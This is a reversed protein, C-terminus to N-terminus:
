LLHSEQKRKDRGGKEGEKQEDEMDGPIWFVTFNTLIAKRQTEIISTRNKSAPINWMNAPEQTCQTHNHCQRLHLSLVMFLLFIALAFTCRLPRTLCNPLSQNCPSSNLSRTKDLLPTNSPPMFSLGEEFQRVATCLSGPYPFAYAQLGIRKEKEPKDSGTFAM